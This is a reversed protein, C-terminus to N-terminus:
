LRDRRPPFHRNKQGLEQNVLPHHLSSRLPSDSSQVPVISCDRSAHVGLIARHCLQLYTPGIGSESAGDDWDIDLKVNPM